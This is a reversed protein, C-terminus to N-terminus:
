YVGHGTGPATRSTCRVARGGQAMGKGNICIFACGGGIAVSGALGFARAHLFHSEKSCKDLCIHWFSSAAECAAFTAKPNAIPEEHPDHPDAMCTKLETSNTGHYRFPYIAAKADSKRSNTLAELLPVLSIFRGASV